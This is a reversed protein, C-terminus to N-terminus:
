RTSRALPKTFAIPACKAIIRFQLTLDAFHRPATQHDPNFQEFRRLFNRYGASAFPTIAFRVACVTMRSTGGIVILSSENTCPSSKSTRM